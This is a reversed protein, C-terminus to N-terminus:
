RRAGIEDSRELVRCIRHVAEKIEGCLEPAMKELEGANLLIVSLAQRIEDAPEREM